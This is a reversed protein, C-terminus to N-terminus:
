VMLSDRDYLKRLATQTVMKDPFKKTFIEVREKMMKAELVERSFLYEFHEDELQLKPNTKKLGINDVYL